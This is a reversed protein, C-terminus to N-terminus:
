LLTAFTCFTPGAGFGRTALEGCWCGRWRLGVCEPFRLPVAKQYCSTELIRWTSLPNAGTGTLAKRDYALQLVFANVIDRICLPVSLKTVDAAFPFFSRHARVTDRGCGARSQACRPPCFATNGLTMVGRADKENLHDELRKCVCRKTV